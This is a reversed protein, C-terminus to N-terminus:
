KPAEEKKEPNEASQNSLPRATCTDLKHRLEACSEEITNKYKVSSKWESM